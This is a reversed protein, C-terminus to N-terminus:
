LGLSVRCAWIVVASFLMADSRDLIGGHGPLLTGSDKVGVSRKVLSECLDGAQGAATALLSVLLAHTVSLERLLWAHALLGSFLGAALGGIAGEMTKKPSVVPALPRKGFRRGVFYGSTDSLFGCLLALMVWSGGHEHRFLLAIAGFMGGIYLPGAVAWGMRAAAQEVPQPQALAVLMGVGTIGLVALPVQAPAVGLGFLSYVGVSALVGWLRLLVHEPALLRFLEWAGLASVGGAVAPFAWDPAWYLLYILVPAWVGATLLRLALNSRTPSPTEAM